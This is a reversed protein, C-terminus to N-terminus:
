YRSNNCKLASISIANVAAGATAWYPTGYGNLGHRVLCKREVFNSTDCPLIYKKPILIRASDVQKSTIRDPMMPGSSLDWAASGGLAACARRPVRSEMDRLPTPGSIVLCVRSLRRWQIPSTPQCPCDHATPRILMSTLLYVHRIGLSGFAPFCSGLEVLMFVKYEEHWRCHRSDYRSYRKKRKAWTMQEIFEGQKAWIKVCHGVSHIQLGHCATHYLVDAKDHGTLDTEKSQVYKDKWGRSQRM